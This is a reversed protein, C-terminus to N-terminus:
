RILRLVKVFTDPGASGSGADSQGPYPMLRGVVTKSPDSATGCWAPPVAYVDSCMGEIFFGLLNVVKVMCPNGGSCNDDFFDQPSFLAVPAIRPSINVGAPNISQCTGSDTCGGTVTNTLSDWHADPDLAILNTTGQDTPGQKVGDKVNLCGKVYNTDPPGACATPPAYLGITPVWTPCSSIEDRYVNGGNGGNLDIERSWGAAYENGQGKLPLELGIDTQASFGTAKAYTDVGPDFIDMLDWGNKNTGTGSKDAWRDAIIWPKICSVANGAAIQATATARVGQSNVGVLGMMLTPITNKHAVGDRDPEGRFVDVRVCSPKGDDPCAFPLPPVVIDTDALHESWIANNRAFTKAEQAALTTATASDMLRGAGALAGADAANQAQRRATLMIGYDIVMATFALMAILAIAVHITIAGREGGFRSPNM